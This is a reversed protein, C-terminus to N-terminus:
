KIRAVPQMTDFVFGSLYTHILTRALFQADYHTHRKLRSTTYIVGIGHVAGWLARAAISVEKANRLPAIRLLQSEVLVFIEEVLNDLPKHQTNSDVGQSLLQWRGPYHEALSLYSKAIVLLATQPDVEDKINFQMDSYLRGLLETNVQAILDDLNEFVLYLTGVTYGMGLAVARASVKAKPDADVIALVSEIALDRLQERSHDSRRAM